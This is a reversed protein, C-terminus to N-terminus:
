HVDAHREDRTLEVALVALPLLVLPVTVVNAFITAGLQIWAGAGTSAADLPGAGFIPRFQERWFLLTVLSGAARSFLVLVSNALLTVVLLGVISVGHGRSLRRSLALIAFPSTEAIASLPLALAYRALAWLAPALGAVLMPLTILLSLTRATGSSVGLAPLVLQPLYILGAAMALGLLGAVGVVIVILSATALLRPARRLVALLVMNVGPHARRDLVLLACIQGGGIGALAWALAATWPAAMSARVTEVEAGPGLTGTIASRVALFIVAGTAIVPLLLALWLALHTFYLSFTRELAIERLSRQAAM